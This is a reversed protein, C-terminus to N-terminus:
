TEWNIASESDERKEFQAVDKVERLMQPQLNCTSGIQPIFQIESTMLVQYIADDFQMGPVFIVENKMDDM